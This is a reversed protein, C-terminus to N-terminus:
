GGLNVPPKYSGWEYANIMTVSLSKTWCSGGAYWM